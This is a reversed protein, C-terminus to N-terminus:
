KLGDPSMSGAKGHCNERIHWLLEDDGMHGGTVEQAMEDLKAKHPLHWGTQYRILEIEAWKRRPRGKGWTRSIFSKYGINKVVVDGAKAEELARREWEDVDEKHELIEHPEV